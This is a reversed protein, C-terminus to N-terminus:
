NAPKKQDSKKGPRRPFLGEILEKDVADLERSVAEFPPREDLPLSLILQNLRNLTQRLHIQLHKFGAPKKEADRGSAKLGAHASKVTDRYDTLVRLAEDYNGAGAQRHIQQFQAEGLKAVAKARSVPDGAQDFAARRTAVDQAAAELPFWLLAALAAFVIKRSPAASNV